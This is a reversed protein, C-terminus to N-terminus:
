FNISFNVPLYIGSLSVPLKFHVYLFGTAAYEIIFIPWILCDIIDNLFLLFNNELWIFVATIVIM